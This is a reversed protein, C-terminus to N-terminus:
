NLGWLDGVIEGVSRRRYVDDPFLGKGKSKGRTFSELRKKDSQALLVWNQLLFFVM